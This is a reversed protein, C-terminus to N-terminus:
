AMFFAVFTNKAANTPNAASGKQEQLDSISLAPLTTYSDVSFALSCVPQAMSFAPCAIFSAPSFNSSLPFASFFSHCEGRLIAGVTVFGCRGKTMEVAQASSKDFRSQFDAGGHEWAMNIAARM